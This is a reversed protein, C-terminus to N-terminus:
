QVEKKFKIRLNGNNNYFNSNDIQSTIINGIERLTEKDNPLDDKKIVFTAFGDESSIASSYLSNITAFNSNFWKRALAKCNVGKSLVGSDSLKINSPMSSLDIEGNNVDINNKKVVKKDKKQNFMIDEKLGTPFSVKYVGFKNMHVVFPTKKYSNNIYATFDKRNMISKNTSKPWFINLKTKKKIQTKTDEVFKIGSVVEEELNFEPRDNVHDLKKEKEMREKREKETREREKREKYAIHDNKIFTKIGKIMYITNDLFVIRIFIFYLVLGLGTKGSGPKDMDMIFVIFFIIFRMYLRIGYIARVLFFLRLFINRDSDFIKEVTRKIINM